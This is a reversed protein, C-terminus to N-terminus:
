DCAGMGNCIGSACTTGNTCSEGKAGLCFRPTTSSCKNSICDTDVVCTKGAVKLCDGMGNCVSGTNIDCSVNPAMTIPDTYSPDNEYYPINTCQGVMGPVTCGKCEGTCAENCCVGDACFGSQCSAAMSCTEGGCLKVPCNICTAIESASLCNACQGMSNCARTENMCHTGPAANSMVPQGNLCTQAVCENDPPEDTDDAVSGPVGGMCSPVQCDGITDAPLDTDDNVTQVEGGICVTKKCDSLTQSGEISMGENAPSRACQGATCSWTACAEDEPCEAESACRCSDPNTECDLKCRGMVCNGANDGLSCIEGEPAPTHTTAGTVCSDVTCPNNDDECIGGSDQRSDYCGIFPGGLTAAFFGLSVVGFWIRRAM